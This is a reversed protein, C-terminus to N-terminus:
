RSQAVLTNSTGDTISSLKNPQQGQTTETLIGFYNDYVGAVMNTGSPWPVPVPTGKPFVGGIGFYNTRGFEHGFGPTDLVLDIDDAPGAGGLSTPINDFFLGSDGIGLALPTDQVNDSPCQFSKIVSNAIKLPATSNGDTSVPPGYGYAWATLTSNPNYLDPPIQRFVNDQEIYPLLFSLVGM